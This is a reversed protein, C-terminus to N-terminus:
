TWRTVHIRCGTFIQFATTRSSTPGAWPEPKDCADSLRSSQWATRFLSSSLQWMPKMGTPTLTSMTQKSLKRMQRRSVSRFRRDGLQERCAAICFAKDLHEAATRPRKLTCIVVLRANILGSTYAPDKARQPLSSPCKSLQTTSIANLM